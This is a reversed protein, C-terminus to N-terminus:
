IYEVGMCKRRRGKCKPESLLRKVLSGATGHLGVFDMEEGHANTGPLRCQKWGDVKELNWLTVM